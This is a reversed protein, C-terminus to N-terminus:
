EAALSACIIEQDNRAYISRNALAPHSWVVPRGPDRNVPDILHTRSLEDYKEPTLKAIILDGKESFIFTKEEHKVVFAHGWRESKGSTPAFTEWLREGTELKLCRFQGYSCPSYIYGHDILPTAMVSHLGDTDRESVKKSEWVVSPPDSDVRLLLSGNYFSTLFLLDSGVKLPTPITMGSRIPPNHPHKWFVKGTEPNLANVAEPHWIILQRKGAFVYIMPPAYGPEKASLARWLEKGSDKDFAVAVSGDGGVLCILKNGDVLPHGAFGWMPTKIGFDKKFDRSWLPTGKEADLCVLNGEAGLTYVKGDHVSPTTRPGAPYSVTYACDYGHEWIIKGDTENLCLIRERGPIEGRAFANAPNTAGKILQRDMIYVRGNAVAPGSYGGGIPVRWRFKLGSDPFKKLIGTERWIGDRQPGLWQPWDDARVPSACLAFIATAAILFGKRFVRLCLSRAFPM